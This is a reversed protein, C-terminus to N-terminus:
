SYDSFIAKICQHKYSNQKVIMNLKEINKIPTWAKSTNYYRNAVKWFKDPYLFRNYLNEMQLEDIKKINDYARLMKEGLQINWQNKELIKRMFNYLDYMQVGYRCKDYNVVAVKKKGDAQTILINHQNFEGHCIEGSQMAFSRLEMYSSAKLLDRAHEGEELFQEFIDLFAMEYDTKRNKKRIFARIKKLERNHREFENLLDEYMDKSISGKIHMSKHIKALTCVAMIIENENKVDVERADYWRKIIYPVEERSLTMLEGNKNELITDTLIERTDAVNQQVMNQFNIKSANEVEKIIVIGKSTNCIISGRGKKMNLIEFDYESAVSIGKDSIM